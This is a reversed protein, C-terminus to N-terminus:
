FAASTIPRNRSTIARITCFMSRSSCRSASSVGGRISCVAPSYFPLPPKRTRPVCSARGNSDRNATQPSIGIGGQTVFSM